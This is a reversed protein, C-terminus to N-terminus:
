IHLLNEAKRMRTPHHYFHLLIQFALHALYFWINRQISKALIPVSSSVIIHM